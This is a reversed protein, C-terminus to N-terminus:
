PKLAILRGKAGVYVRFGREALWPSALDAVRKGELSYWGALSITMRSTRKIANEMGKLVELEHGNVTITVYNIEREALGNDELVKDLSYTQVKSERLNQLGLQRLTSDELSRVMANSNSTMSRLVSSRSSIFLPLLKYNAGAHNSRINASLKGFDTSDGEIALVFGKAGVLSLLKLTGLGQYAGVDVAFDGSTPRASSMLIMRTKEDFDSFPDRHPRYKRQSIPQRDGFSEGGYSRPVDYRDVLEDVVGFAEVPFYRGLFFLKHIIRQESNTQPGRVKLGSSTSVSYGDGEAVVELPLHHRLLGPFYRRNVVNLLFRFSPFRFRM